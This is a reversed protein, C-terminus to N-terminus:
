PVLAGAPETRATPASPWALDRRARARARQAQQACAGVQYLRGQLQCRPDRAPWNRAMCMRAPNAHARVLTRQLSGLPAAASAGHARACLDTRPRCSLAFVPRAPARAPASCARRVEPSFITIHRDYGGGGRSMAVAPESAQEGAHHPSARAGHTARSRAAAEFAFAFPGRITM